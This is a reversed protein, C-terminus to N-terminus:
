LLGMKLKWMKKQLQIIINVPRCKKAPPTKETGYVPAVFNNATYTGTTNPHDLVMDLPIEPYIYVVADQDNTYNPVNAISYLGGYGVMGYNVHFGDGSSHGDVVWAHCGGGHECGLYCIPRVL